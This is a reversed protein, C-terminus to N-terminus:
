LRLNIYKKCAIEQFFVGSFFAQAGLSELCGSIFVKKNIPHFKLANARAKIRRM